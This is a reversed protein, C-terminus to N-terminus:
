SLLHVANDSLLRFSQMDFPQSRETLQFIYKASDDM